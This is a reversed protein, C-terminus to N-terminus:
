GPTRLFAGAASALAHPRERDPQSGASAFFVVHCAPLRERWLHPNASRDLAGFM